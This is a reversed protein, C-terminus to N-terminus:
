DEIPDIIIKFTGDQQAHKFFCHHRMTHCAAGVQEVEMIISDNDCDTYFSKLYQVHGSSEGKRWLARKSRSYYCVQGTTLTEHLAQKNM